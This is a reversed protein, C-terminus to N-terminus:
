AISMKKLKRERILLQKLLENETETLQIKNTLQDIEAEYEDLLTEYAQRETEYITTQRLFEDAQKLLKEEYEKSALVYGEKKGDSTGENYIMSTIPNDECWNEKIDSKIGDILGEEAIHKLTNITKYGPIFNKMLFRDFGM